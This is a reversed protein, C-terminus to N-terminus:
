VFIWGEGRRPPLPHNEDKTARSEPMPISLHICIKLLYYCASCSTNRYRYNPPPPCYGSLYLMCRRGSPHLESGSIDMLIMPPSALPPWDAKGASATDPRGGISYLLRKKINEPRDFPREKEINKGSGSIDPQFGQASSRAARDEYFFIQAQNFGDPFVDTQQPEFPPRLDDGRIRFLSYLPQSFSFLPKINDECIRGVFLTQECFDHLTELSRFEQSFVTNDDQLM